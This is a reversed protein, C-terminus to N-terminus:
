QWMNAHKQWVTLLDADTTNEKRQYVCLAGGSHNVLNLLHDAAKYTIRENTASTAACDHILVITHNHPAGHSSAHLFSVMMCALRMRGDVMYVDFASPEALLPAFQYDLISKSLSTDFPMGWMGTLGIDALYFRFHTHVADRSQSVWIADSDVGSYRPVGVHSAIFTSEGLGYEFVSSANGYIQALLIRDMDSLGGSGRTWNSLDFEKRLPTAKKSFAMEYATQVATDFATTTNAFADSTQASAETTNRNQEVATRFKLISFERMCLIVNVIMFGLCAVTAIKPQVM